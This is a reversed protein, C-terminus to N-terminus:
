SLHFLRVNVELNWLKKIEWVGNLAGEASSSNRPCIHMLYIFSSFFCFLLSFKLNIPVFIFHLIVNSDNIRM